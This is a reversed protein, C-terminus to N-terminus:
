VSISGSNINHLDTVKATSLHYASNFDAGEEWGSSERWLFDLDFVM